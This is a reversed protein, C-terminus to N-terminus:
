EAHSKEKQELSVFFDIMEVPDFYPTDSGSWGRRQVGTRLGEVRPLEKVGFNSRFAEMAEPGQRLAERLAKVKNRPWQTENQLEKTIAHFNDWTRWDASGNLWVPRMLLSAGADATYERQRLEELSLLAGSTSVHWDITIGNEIRHTDRAERLAKKATGSLAEALEYARSFPYHSKVIAIGGRAYLPDGNEGDYAGPLPERALERLYHATLDLGFRGECIFTTDDGGFVLPRFPVQIMEKKKRVPVVGGWREEKQGNPLLVEQRSTLLRELTSRMAREATDVVEESMRRLHTIYASNQQPSSHAKAIAQFRKGMRNGDTHVVAIYSSEGRTGFYDFDRVTEHTDAYEKPFVRTLRREAPSVGPRGRTMKLKQVVSRSILRKDPDRDVAPLGTFSCAATVSLGLLPTPQRRGAKLRAMETRLAEHCRALSENDWDLKQHHIVLSLQAANRALWTTLAVVFPKAADYNGEFLLLANGGGAYIVETCVNQKAISRAEDYELAEDEWRVNHQDRGVTADLGAVVEETTARAVRESAGINQRLNNSGFIYPQIGSAEIQVMTVERM